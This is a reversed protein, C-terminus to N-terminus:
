ELCAGGYILDLLEWVVKGVQFCICWVIWFIGLPFAGSHNVFGNVSGANLLALDGHI